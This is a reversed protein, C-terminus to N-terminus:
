STTNTGTEDKPISNLKIEFVLTSYPPIAAGNGAAGYGLQWPIIVEVEEGVVMNQLMWIWGVIMNNVLFDTTGEDSHTTHNDLRGNYTVNVTSTYLPKLSDVYGSDVIHYLVYSDPYSLPSLSDFYAKGTEPNISDRMADFFAENEAKWDLYDEYSDDDLCSTLIFSGILFLLFYNFKKM